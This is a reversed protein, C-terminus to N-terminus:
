QKPDCDKMAPDTALEMIHEMAESFKPYKAMAKELRCDCMKQADDKSMEGPATNICGQVFMDRSEGDWTNECSTMLPFIALLLLYKRM